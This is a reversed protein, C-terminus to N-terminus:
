WCWDVPMTGKTFPYSCGDLSTEFEFKVGRLESIHAEMERVLRMFHDHSPPRFDQYEKSGSCWYRSAALLTDVPEGSVCSKMTLELNVKASPNRFRNTADYAGLLGILWIGDM